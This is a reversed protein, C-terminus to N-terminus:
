KQGIIRMFEQIHHRQEETLKEFHMEVMREVTRVRSDTVKDYTKVVRCRAVIPVRMLPLELEIQHYNGVHILQTTLRAMFGAANVVLLEVAAKTGANELQAMIPYPPVKKKRVHAAEDM